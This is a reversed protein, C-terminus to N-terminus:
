ARACRNPGAELGAWDGEPLIGTRNSEVIAAFHPPPAGTGALVKDIFEGEALLLYPNRKKLEALTAGLPVGDFAPPTPHHAPLVQLSDPLRLLRQLSGHLLGAQVGPDLGELLDPRGVSDLFLTDGTFVALNELVYCNSEPTHGPTRLARLVLDGVALEWGEAPRLPKAGALGALTESRSFHDAHVHTDLVATVRWGRDEALRLYVEPPLAPDIAVAQDRSGLLYSLCGKGARRVQLLEAGARPLPVVALNWALSWAKMGGALSYVPHGDRSLIDAAQRSTRGLACVTVVPVNAPLPIAAVAAEDGSKLAQYVDAHRSGPIAWEARQDAPRVDLIHVPRGEALWQRLTEMDIETSM